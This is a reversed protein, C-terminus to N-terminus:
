ISFGVNSKGTLEISVLWRFAWHRTIAVKTYECTIESLEKKLFGRRVSIPADNKVMISHSFVRTLFSIALFAITSRQLDNIVIGIRAVRSWESLLLRLDKTSFHHCFLSAHVIDFSRDRFPLRFASGNVVNLSPFHLTSYQCARLNLDLATVDVARDLSRLVGAINSGGAGCDLIRLPFDKPLTRTLRAIGVRSVHDGGLFRNIVKLERLADDIREDTISMDDIMELSTSRLGLMLGREPIGNGDVIRPRIRNRV